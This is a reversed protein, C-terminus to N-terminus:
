SIVYKLIQAQARKETGNIQTVARTGSSHHKSLSVELKTKQQNTQKNTKAIQPVM